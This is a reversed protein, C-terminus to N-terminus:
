SNKKLISLAQSIASDNQYLIPYYADRDFLNRGILAKLLLTFGSEAGTLTATIKKTNLYEKLARIEKEAIQYKLIFDTANAYSKMLASRNQDTYEFAFSNLLGSNYLRNVAHSFKITDLPVFIDPVIGGGGYVIKGAPTHYQKTKDV